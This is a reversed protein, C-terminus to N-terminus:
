CYGSDAKRTQQKRAKDEVAVAEEEGRRSQQLPQPRTGVQWTSQESMHFFAVDTISEWKNRM